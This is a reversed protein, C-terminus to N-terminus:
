YRYRGLFDSILWARSIVRKFQVIYQTHTNNYYLLFPISFMGFHLDFNIGKVTSNIQQNYMLFLRHDDFLSAFGKMMKFIVEGLFVGSVVVANSPPVSTHQFSSWSSLLWCRRGNWLWRLRHGTTSVSAIQSPHGRVGDSVGGIVDWQAHKWTSSGRVRVGHGRRLTRLM